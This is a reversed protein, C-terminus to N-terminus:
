LSAVDVLLTVTLKQKHFLYVTHVLYVAAGALHEQLLLMVPGVVLNGFCLGQHERLSLDSEVQTGLKCDCM